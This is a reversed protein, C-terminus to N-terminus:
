ELRGPDRGRSLLRAPKRVDSGACPAIPRRRAGGSPTAAILDLPKRRRGLAREAARQTGIFVVVRRLVRPDRRGADRSGPQGLLRAAILTSVPRDAPGRWSVFHLGTAQGTRHAVRAVGASRFDPGAIEFDATEDVELGSSAVLMGRHSLNLVRGAVCCRRASRM